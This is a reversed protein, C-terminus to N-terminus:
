KATSSGAALPRQVDSEGAQIADPRERLTVRVDHLLCGIRQFARQHNSPAQRERDLFASSYRQVEGAIVVRQHHHDRECRRRRLGGSMSWGTSSGAASPDCISASHGSVSIPRRSRASSAARRAAPRRGPRLGRSRSFGGPRSLGRAASSGGVAHPTARATTPRPTHVSPHRPGSAVSGSVADRKAVREM